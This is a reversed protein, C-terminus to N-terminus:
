LFRAFATRLAEIDELRHQLVHYVIGRDIEVYEHVLVNRFGIMRTWVKALPEDILGAQLLLRPVDSYQDVIGLEQDAILHNGLDITTEIALHLFREASGYHEPDSRFEREGYRQLEHLIALYEDLRNLRRRIVEPRGM